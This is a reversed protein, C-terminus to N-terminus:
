LFDALGNLPNCRLHLPCLTLYAYHMHMYKRTVLEELGFVSWRVTHIIEVWNVTGDQFCQLLCFIRSRNRILVLGDIVSYRM